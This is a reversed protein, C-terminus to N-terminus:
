GHRKVTKSAVRKKETLKVSPCFFNLVATKIERLCGPLTKCYSVSIGMKIASKYFRVRRKPTHNRYRSNHTVM